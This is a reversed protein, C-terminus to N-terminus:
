KQGYSYNPPKPPDAPEPTHHKLLALLVIVIILALAIVGAFLYPSQPAPTEVMPPAILVSETATPQVEVPPSLPSPVAPVVLDPFVIRLMGGRPSFSLLTVTIDRRRDGDLDIDETAGRALQFLRYPEHYLLLRLNGNVGEAVFVYEVDRYRVCFQNNFSVLLTQEPGTIPEECRLERPLFVSADAAHGILARPYPHLAVLSIGVLLLILLGHPFWRAHLPVHHAPLKRM